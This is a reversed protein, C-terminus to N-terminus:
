AYKGGKSSNEVFLAGPMALSTFILPTASSCAGSPWRRRCLCHRVVGITESETECSVLLLALPIIAIKTTVKANGYKPARGLQFHNVKSFKYLGIREFFHVLFFGFTVFQELYSSLWDCPGCRAKFSALGVSPRCSSALGVSPRPPPLAWHGCRAKSSALDAGPRPLPLARVLGQLLCPECRAKSSALGAGPRPPPLFLVPGQLLFPSCRAMSSALGAGPRPCRL